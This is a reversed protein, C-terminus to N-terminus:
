PAIKYRGTELAYEIDQDLQDFIENMLKRHGEPDYFESYRDTCHKFDIPTKETLYKYWLWWDKPHFSSIFEEWEPNPFANAIASIENPVQKFDDGKFFILGHYLNWEVEIHLAINLEGCKTVLYTLSPWVKKRGPCYFQKADSQYTSRIKPLRSGFHAAIHEEMESFVQVMMKARLDTLAKEIEAASEYNEKSNGIIDEIMMQFEDRKGKGTLRELLRSYQQVIETVATAQWAIEGCRALWPQIDDAFSLCSYDSGKATGISEPKPEHADLTLYYVHHEQAASAFSVYREIQRYQDDAHIKVEIPFCFDPGELLLDMRGYDTENRQDFSRERSVKISGPFPKNLVLEFFARLFQDGFGHSGDPRLLEYLLRCHTLEEQNSSILLSFVNFDEGPTKPMKERLELIHRAQTLLRMIVPEQIDM